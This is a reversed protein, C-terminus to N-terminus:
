IEIAIDFPGSSLKESEGNPSVFEAEVGHPLRGSVQIKGADIQWSASIEGAPTVVSGSAHTLSGGPAPAIRVKQYGPELSQIGLVVRYLWDVVAGLAYHNFSTMGDPNVNGDPLMSDWREWITTAGMTIPYGWSPCKTQEILRYADELRGTSSLADCIEPTGAFGTGILYDGARLLEALREGAAAREEESNYLGYNIALAYATQSDSTLKGEPLFYKQRFADASKKSVSLFEDHEPEGIIEAIKAAVGLSRILYANAVLQPDTQGDQPADPPATPDLWDGLQFDELWLSDEGALEMLQCAWKKILGWHRRLYETEGTHQYLAWPLLVAVDDWVAAPADVEWFFPAPVWPVYWPVIGYEDYEAEVDLLWDSLFDACDGLTLATPGFVQIDGTWGLREDSQPCDTPLGVFNSRMSWQVNSHLQNLMPNSCEFKSTMEIPSRVVQMVISDLDIADVAGSIEAYSFGHVTFRPEYNRKGKGVGVFNDVSHAERLPRVCLKGNELVEAHRIKVTENSDLDADFSIRGSSNQGFDILLKDAEREVKEPSLKEVRSISRWEVMNENVPKTVVGQWTLSDKQPTSWRLDELAGDYTEGDYLQARSRPSATVQWSDDTGLTQSSGDAYEIELQVLASVEDGYLNVSGGDFGIRGRWWGDAVEAGTTLDIGAQKVLATVDYKAFPMRHHYSMWGPALTEEHALNGNIYLDIVGKASVYATAKRVEGSLKYSGAFRWASGEAETKEAPFIWSAKWNKKAGM